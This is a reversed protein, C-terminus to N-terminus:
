GDSGGQPPEPSADLGFSVHSYTGCQSKIYAAIEPPLEFLRVRTEVNGGVNAAAGYDSTIVALRM